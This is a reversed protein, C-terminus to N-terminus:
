WTVRRRRLLSGVMKQPNGETRNSLLLLAAKRMEEADAEAARMGELDGISQLVRSLTRQALFGQLEDPVQLVCSSDSLCIYDGVAVNPSCDAQALEVFTPDSDLANASLALYEGPTNAAIVDLSTVPNLASAWDLQIGGSGGPNTVASVARCASVAVLRAPRAYFRMRLYLGATAPPPYLVVSGAEVTFSEPVGSSMGAYRSLDATDIRTLHRQISGASDVIAVDRLKGGIARAPVRYAGRNTVLAVDKTRHFFEERVSMILPVVRTQMEKDAQTLIDADATGLTSTSPLMGSRRVDALLDTTTYPM